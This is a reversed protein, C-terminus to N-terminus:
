LNKKLFYLIGAPIKYDFIIPIRHNTNDWHPWENIYREQPINFYSPQNVNYTTTVTM